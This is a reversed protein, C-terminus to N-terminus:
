RDHGYDKEDGLRCCDWDRDRDRDRDGYTGRERDRDREWGHGCKSDYDAMNEVVTDNGKFYSYCFSYCLFSIYGKLSQHHPLNM